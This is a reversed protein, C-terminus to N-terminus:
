MLKMLREVSPRRQKQLRYLPKVALKMRNLLWRVSRVGDPKKLCLFSNKVLEVKSKLHRLFLFLRFISVKCTHTSVSDKNRLSSDAQSCLPLSVRLQFESCHLFLHPPEAGTPWIIIRSPCALNLRQPTNPRRPTSVPFLGKLKKFDVFPFLQQDPASPWPRNVTQIQYELSIYRTMLGFYVSRSELFMVRVQSWQGALM